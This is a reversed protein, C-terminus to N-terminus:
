QVLVPLYRCSSSRERVGGTRLTCSRLSISHSRSLFFSPFCSDARATRTESFNFLVTSAPTPRVNATIISFACVCGGLCVCAGVRVCVCVCARVRARACVRVWVRVRVCARACLTLTSGSSLARVCVRARARACLCGCACAGVVCVCARVCARACM